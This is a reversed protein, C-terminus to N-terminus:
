PQTTKSYFQLYVEVILLHVLTILREKTSYKLHAVQFAQPHAARWESIYELWPVVPQEIQESFAFVVNLNLQRSLLDSLLQPSTLELIPCTPALSLSIDELIDQLLRCLTQGFHITAQHWHSQKKRHCLKRLPM